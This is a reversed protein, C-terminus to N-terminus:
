ERLFLELVSELTHESALELARLFALFDDRRLGARSLSVTKEESLFIAALLSLGRIFLSKRPDCACSGRLWLKFSKLKYTRM